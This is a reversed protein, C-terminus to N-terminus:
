IIGTKNAAGYLGLGTAAGGVLQNLLSPQPASTLSLTQQTSPAGRLIDSYFSLRQYPEYINQLQTQRDAELQKQAVDRQLGGIGQLMSVDQMGLKTDLEGLAAQRVGLDGLTKGQLAGLQGIGLGAQLQRKQQAEQGTLAAKQAEFFGQAQAKALADLRNRDLESQMLAARSGGLVGAQAQQQGLQSRQIDYARNIEDTIASQYPNMYAAIGTSPDFGQTAGAAMNAGFAGRLDTATAGGALTDAGTQLYPQYGGIGSEALSAAQQELSSLPSVQLSPLGGTPPAGTLGRAQQMLGIKLAEIEPAERQYITQSDTAMQTIGQGTDYNFFGDATPLSVNRSDVSMQKGFQNGFVGNAPDYDNPLARLREINEDDPVEGTHEYHRVIASYNPSDELLSVADDYIDDHGSTFPFQSM